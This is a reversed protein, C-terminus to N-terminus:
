SVFMFYLLIFSWVTIVVLTVQTLLKMKEPISVLVCNGLQVPGWVRTEDCQRHVNSDTGKDNPWPCPVTITTRQVSVPWLFHDHGIKMDDMSCMESESTVVKIVIEKRIQEGLHCAYTGGDQWAVSKFNIMTTLKKEASNKNEQISHSLVQVHKPLPNQNKRWYPKARRKTVTECVVSFSDGVSVIQDGSPKIM